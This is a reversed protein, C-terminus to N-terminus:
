TLKKVRPMALKYNFDEMVTELVVELTCIGQLDNIGGNPELLVQSRTM